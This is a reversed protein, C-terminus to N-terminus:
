FTMKKREKIPLLRIVGKKFDSNLAAHLMVGANQIINLSDAKSNIVVINKLNDRYIDLQGNNLEYQIQPDFWRNNTPFHYSGSYELATFQMSLGPRKFEITQSISNLYFIIFFLLLFFPKNKNM